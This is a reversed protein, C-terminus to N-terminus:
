SRMHSFSSCNVASTPPGRFLPRGVRRVLLRVALVALAALLAARVGRPLALWRDAAYSLVLAAAGQWLLRALGATVRLLRIRALVADLRAHVVALGPAPVPAARTEAPAAARSM